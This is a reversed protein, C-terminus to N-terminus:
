RFIGHHIMEDIFKWKDILIHAHKRKLPTGVRLFTWPDVVVPVLHRQQLLGPDDNLELTDDPVSRSIFNM